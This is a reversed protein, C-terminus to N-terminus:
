KGLRNSVFYRVDMDYFKKVTEPRDVTWIVINLGSDLVLAVDKVETNRYNASIASCGIAKAKAVEEESIAQLLYWLEINENLEHIKVLSDYHFSIVIAKETLGREEIAKVVDELGESGSSKIEIEPRTASDKFVDLYEDLSPIKEDGYMWFATDFSYKLSRVEDFTKKSIRGTGFFHKSIKDDHTIVWRGDATRIIDCEAAYFNKKAASRFSPLSNEPAETNGGRHATIYVPDTESGIGNESLSVPDRPTYHQKVAFFVVTLIIAAATIVSLAKKM